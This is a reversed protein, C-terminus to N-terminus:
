SHWPLWESLEKIKTNLKTIRTKYKSIYNKVLSVQTPKHCVCLARRFRGQVRHICVKWPLYNYKKRQPKEWLGLGRARSASSNQMKINKNQGLVKLRKLTIKLSTKINSISKLDERRVINCDSAFFFYSINLDIANVLRWIGSFKQSLYWCISAIAYICPWILHINNWCLFSYKYFCILHSLHLLNRMNPVAPNNM